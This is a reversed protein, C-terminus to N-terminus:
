VLGPSLHLSPNDTHRKATGQSESLMSQFLAKTCPPELMEGRETSQCTSQCVHGVFRTWGMSPM